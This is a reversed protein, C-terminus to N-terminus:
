KHYYTGHGGGHATGTHPTQSSAFPSYGSLNAMLLYGIAVVCCGTYIWHGWKM